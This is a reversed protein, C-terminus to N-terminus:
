QKEETKIQVPVVQPAGRGTGASVRLPAILADNEPADWAVEGEAALRVTGHTVVFTAPLLSVGWARAAARERDLLVRGPPALEAFFRSVRAEPEAVDVLLVPVDPHRAAFRGLAPLETRCPECWTAFFHVVLAGHAGADDLAGGDLRPLALAPAPTSGEVPRLLRPTADGSPASSLASSPASRAPGSEAGGQAAAPVVLAHLLSILVAVHRLLCLRPRRLPGRRSSGGLGERRVSFNRKEGRAEPARSLQVLAIQQRGDCADVSLDTFISVEQMACNINPVM